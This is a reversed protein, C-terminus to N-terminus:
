GPISDRLSEPMMGPPYAKTVTTMGQANGGWLLERIQVCSWNYAAKSVIVGSLDWSDVKEMKLVDLWADTEQADACM